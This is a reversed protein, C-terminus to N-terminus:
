GRRLLLWLFFPGGVFATVIGVPLEVPAVITRAFTDCAALFVGGLIASAPLLLRHSPGLLLRCVHPAMMGVFGIPGCVAVVGAIAISTALYLRRRVVLVEVGRSAAIDSGIALLDLARAHWLVVAGGVVVFPLMRLVAAGDASGLGGMLWRVIRFSDGLSVTYQVFLIASSFFFNLAVGALLLVTTTLVRRLRSVSWVVVMAAVAGAFAALSDVAVGFVAAAALGFRAAVAVGFSAGAAVGLTYPTALPNRFLAQFAAGGLALGAGGILAALLRPVRISWFIVSLPDDPSAGLVSTLPVGRPGIFPLVIVIAVAAAALWGLRRGPTM